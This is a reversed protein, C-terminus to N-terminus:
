QREKDVRATATHTHKHTPQRGLAFAVYRLANHCHENMLTRTLRGSYREVWQNATLPKVLRYLERDTHSSATWMRREVIFVIAVATAWPNAPPTVTVSFKTRHTSGKKLREMADLFRLQYELRSADQATVAKGLVTDVMLEGSIYVRRCRRAQAIRDELYWQRKRESAPDTEPNKRHFLSGGMVWAKHWARVASTIAIDLRHDWGRERAIGTALATLEGFADYVGDERLFKRARKVKGRFWTQAEPAWYDIIRMRSRATETAVATFVYNLTIPLRLHVCVVYLIAALDLPWLYFRKANIVSHKAWRKWARWAASRAPEAFRQTCREATTMIMNMRRHRHRNSEREKTAEAKSYKPMRTPQTSSHAPATSFHGRLRVAMDAVTEETNELPPMTESEHLTLVRTKILGCKTCVVQGGRTDTALMGSCREDSCAFRRKVITGPRVTVVARKKCGLLHTHKISAASKHFPTPKADRAVPSVGEM